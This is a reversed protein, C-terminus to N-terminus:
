ISKITDLLSSYLSVVEADTMKYTNYYGGAHLTLPGPMTSSTSGFLISNSQASALSGASQEIKSFLNGQVVYSTVKLNAVDKVCVFLVPEDFVISFSSSNPKSISIAANSATTIQSVFLTHIRTFPKTAGGSSNVYRITAFFRGDGGVLPTYTAATVTANDNSPTMFFFTSGSAAEKLSSLNFRASNGTVMKLGDIELTIGSPLGSVVSEFDVNSTDTFESYASGYLVAKTLSSLSPFVPNIVSSGYGNGKAYSALQQITIKAM